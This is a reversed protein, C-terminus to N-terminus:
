KKIKGRRSITGGKRGAESALGSVAFGKPVKASGGVRGIDRYFHKGHRKTNTKAAKKGSSYNGSM